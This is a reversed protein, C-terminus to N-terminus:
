AIRDDKRLSAARRDVGPLMHAPDRTVVVDVVYPGSTDDVAQRLASGLSGPDEVRIGSCGLSEGIAAYNLDSLDASQYKADFMLHQLAKVYGSAANNVVVITAPVGARRLTELDGLSMNCGGDGTLAVVPSNPAALGAGLAGPVGYGISALGRNAIYGRGAQKTDYLLGTWHAAFGGDAVLIAESPLVSNLEHILRAVSIPQENSRLKKETDNTWKSRRSAVETLYDIRSVQQAGASLDDLTAAADGWLAVTPRATRGFDEPEIDIHIMPTHDPVLNYRETAIEGLKCGVVVVLDSEKILDNAFRSYRGFIGISMADLCPISGKGSMTHAVPVQWASVFRYVAEYAESLHVGGGALLVPRSSRQLLAVAQDLSTSDPRSRRAPMRHTAPDTWFDEDTLAVEAHSVDEPIDLVVAGARGSTAVTYARRVMEPMREAREVRFLAKAAPALIERQRTEQTMHRGSFSTHADGTIAILPVGANTSEALATVLNTAGPGLTADCIGPRGTVRAYADAAFAGTREDNILHHTMGLERVANYFPLLQFGGMGFM